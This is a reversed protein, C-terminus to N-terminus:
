EAWAPVYKGATKLELEHNNYAPEMKGVLSWFRRSHDLHVTHCLEHLLVYRVLREPLFLMKQNVSITGRPSCSAWRTRQNGIVAREFEMGTKIGLDALAPVLRQRAKRSLWRKLAQRCAAKEHVAGSVTLVEGGREAASARKAPTPRYVVDWTESISQLFIVEPLREPRLRPSMRRQGDAWLMAQEIWAAKEELISPLRNLNFGPPVVVVLGDAPTVNLRVNKVRSSERLTYIPLAQQM